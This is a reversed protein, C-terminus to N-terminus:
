SHWPSKYQTSQATVEAPHQTHLKAAQDIVLMQLLSTKSLRHLVIDHVSPTWNYNNRFCGTCCALLVLNCDEAANTTDVVKVVAHEHMREDGKGSM